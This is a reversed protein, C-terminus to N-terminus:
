GRSGSRSWIAVVAADDELQDQQQRQQERQRHQQREQERDGGLADRHEGLAADSKRVEGVDARADWAPTTWPITPVIMIPTMTDSNANGSPMM